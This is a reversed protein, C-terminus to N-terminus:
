LVPQIRGGLADKWSGGMAVVGRRWTHLQEQMGEERTFCLCCSQRVSHSSKDLRAQDASVLPRACWSGTKGHICEFCSLGLVGAAWGHEVPSSLFQRLPAWRHQAWKGTAVARGSVWAAAAARGMGARGAHTGLVTFVIVCLALVALNPQAQLGAGRPWGQGQERWCRSLSSCVKGLRPQSLQHIKMWVSALWGSGQPWSWYL